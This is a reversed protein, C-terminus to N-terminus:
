LDRKSWSSLQLMTKSDPIKLLTSDKEMKM